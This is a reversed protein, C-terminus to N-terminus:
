EYNKNNKIKNKINLIKEHREKLLKLKKIEKKISIRQEILDDIFRRSTNNFYYTNLQIKLSRSKNNLRSIKDQINM